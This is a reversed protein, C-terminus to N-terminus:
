HGLPWILLTAWLGVRKGPGPPFISPIWFFQWFIARFPVASVELEQFTQEVYIYLMIILMIYRTPPKSCTKNKWINPIIMGVSKWIKWLPQFWWGSSFDHSHHFHRVKYQTFHYIFISVTRNFNSIMEQITIYITGCNKSTSKTQGNKPLVKCM